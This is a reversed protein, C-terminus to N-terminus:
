FATHVGHQGHAPSPQQSRAGKQAIDLLMSIKHAETLFVWSLILGAGGFFMEVAGTGFGLIMTGIGATWLFPLIGKGSAEM